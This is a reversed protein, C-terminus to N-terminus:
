HIDSVKFLHPHTYISTTPQETWSLVQDLNKLCYRAAFDQGHHHRRVTDWAAAGQRDHSFFKRTRFDDLASDDFVICVCSIRQLLQWLFAAYSQSSIECTWIDVLEFLSDHFQQHSMHRRESIGHFGEDEGTRGVRAASPSVTDAEWEAAASREAEFVDFSSDLDLAKQVLINFNLFTARDLQMSRGYGTVLLWVRDIAVCVLPDLRLQERAVHAVDTNLRESSQQRYSVAVSQAEDAVPAEATLQQTLPAPRGEAGTTVVLETEALLSQLRVVEATVTQDDAAGPSLRERQEEDRKRERLYARERATNAALHSEIARVAGGAAVQAAIPDLVPTPTPSTGPSHRTRKRERRKTGKGPQNNVSSSTKAIANTPLWMGSRLGLGVQRANRAIVRELDAETANSRLTKLAKRQKRRLANAAGIAQTYVTTAPGDAHASGSHSAVSHSESLKKNSRQAREPAGGRTRGLPGRGTGVRSFAM